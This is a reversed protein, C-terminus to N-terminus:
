LFTRAPNSRKPTMQNCEHGIASSDRAGQREDDLSAGLSRTVRGFICVCLLASIMLTKAM